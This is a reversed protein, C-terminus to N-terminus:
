AMAGVPRKMARKGKNVPTVVPISNESIQRNPTKWLGAQTLLYHVEVCVALAVLRAGVVIISNTDDTTM